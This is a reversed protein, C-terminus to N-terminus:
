IRQPLAYIGAKTLMNDPLKRLTFIYEYSCSCFVFEGPREIEDTYGDPGPKMLGKELAWNGRVAYVHEDREKHDKRYDYGKRRWPSHWRAALAGGEEAVIKHISDVLKHTQDVVVRRQIFDMQALPKRIDDKKAKPDVIKSGGAPISTAWGQFRRLTNSIAEDRNLKILNASAMIRRDLDRRLKPKVREVTARAIEPMSRLVGHHTVLQSYRNTLAQKLQKETQAPTQLAKLGIGRIRQVWANLEAQSTFGFQRYHNVAETLVSFLTENAM